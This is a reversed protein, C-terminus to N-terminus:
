TEEDLEAWLGCGDPTVGNIRSLGAVLTWGPGHSHRVPLPESGAASVQLRDGATSLKMEIIDGGCALVATFLENAVLPADPHPTHKTTWARVASAESPHAKFAKQWTSGTESM